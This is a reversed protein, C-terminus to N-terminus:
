KKTRDIILIDELARKPVYHIDEADRYYNTNRDEKVDTLVIKEDPKGLAVILLPALNEPFKLVNAVEDPKFNGIMCGGLGESAAQLLCM